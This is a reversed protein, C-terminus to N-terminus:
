RMLGTQELMSDSTKTGDSGPGLVAKKGHHHGIQLARTGLSKQTSEPSM